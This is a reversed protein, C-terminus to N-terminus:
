STESNKGRVIEKYLIMGIDWFVFLIVFSLGCIFLFMYFGYATDDYWDYSDVGRLSAIYILPIFFFLCVYSNIFM